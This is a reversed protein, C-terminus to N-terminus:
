SVDRLGEYIGFILAYTSWCVINIGEIEMDKGEHKRNVKLLHLVLTLQM